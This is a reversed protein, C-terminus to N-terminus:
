AAGTASVVIPPRGRRPPMFDEPIGQPALSVAQSVGLKQLMMGCLDKVFKERTKYHSPIMDWRRTFFLYVEKTALRSDYAEEEAQASAAAKRRTKSKKVTDVVQDVYPLAQAEEKPPPLRKTVKIVNDDIDVGRALFANFVHPPLAQTDEVLDLRRYATRKSMHFMWKVYSEFMKYPAWIQNLERLFEGIERKSHGYKQLAGALGQSKAIVARREEETKLKKWGRFKEFTEATPPIISVSTIDANTPKKTKGRPM